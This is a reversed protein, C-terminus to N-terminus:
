NARYDFPNSPTDASKMALYVLLAFFVLIPPIWLKKNNALFDLFGKMTRRRGPPGAGDRATPCVDYTVAM